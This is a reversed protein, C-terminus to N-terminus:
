TSWWHSSNLFGMMVPGTQYGQTLDASVSIWQTDLLSTGKESALGPFKGLTGSIDGPDLFGRLAPSTGIWLLLPEGPPQM